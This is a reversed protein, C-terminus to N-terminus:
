HLQKALASKESHSGFVNIIALLQEVSYSKRGIGITHQPKVIAEKIQVMRNNVLVYTGNSSDLDRLHIEGNVFKLEAHHRSVTRDSIYIHGARGIIFTLGEM